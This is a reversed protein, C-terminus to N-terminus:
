DSYGLERLANRTEPDVDHAQRAVPLKESTTAWQELEAALETMM